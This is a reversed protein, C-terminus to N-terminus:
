KKSVKCLNQVLESSTSPSSCSSSSVTIIFTNANPVSPQLFATHRQNDTSSSMVPAKLHLTHHQSQLVSSDQIIDEEETDTPNLRSM